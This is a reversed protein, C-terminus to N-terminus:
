GKGPVECMSVPGARKWGTGLLWSRARPLWPKILGFFEPASSCLDLWDRAYFRGRQAAHRRANNLVYALASRVERPTKLVRDHYRDAFLRGRRGLHRNLRRAIRIFLGQLGRALANRDDAECILHLHNSMVSFEVV